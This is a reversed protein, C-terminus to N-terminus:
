LQLGGFNVHKFFYICWVEIIICHIINEIDLLFDLDEIQINYLLLENMFSLVVVVVVCTLQTLFFHYFHQMYLLSLMM